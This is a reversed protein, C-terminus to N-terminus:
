KLAGLRSTISDLLEDLRAGDETRSLNARRSATRSDSWLDLGRICIWAEIYFSLVLLIFTWLSTITLSPGAILLTGILAIPPWFFVPSFMAALMFYSTRSDLGEDSGEAMFKALGWQPGSSLLTIPLSALMLLMGFLGALHESPSKRALRNNPALSTAYLDNKHLIEAAEKAEEIMSNNADSGISERVHRAAHVEDALNKLPSDAKNAGLHAILKWARYTEWDPADPTLPSLAEFIRTRMEITDDHSPEVWEGDVLKARDEPSHTEPIPIPEGFEVYHDTRLWHHTRWHLGVPQVVPASLGKEAAISAAALASRSSGTRLAHLRSDQHSKGEPMVVASNGAALCSAVTLMGRDNIYRAFEADTIGAEIEARRLVPQSGFRRAWWGIVPRTMLDHRGLSIVRKKQVRTIVMPDVLGNIHTAVYIVGGQAEPLPDAEWKRFIAQNGLEFMIDLASQAWRKGPHKGTHDYPVRELKDRKLRTASQSLEPLIEPANEQEAM